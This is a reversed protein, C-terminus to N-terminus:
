GLPLMYDALRSSTKRLNQSVLRAIAKLIRVGTAAHKELILDFRERTLIVLTANKRARVTASRPFDDIVAMEGISRGRNLTALVVYRGEETKKVVDLAGEAVFCIYDGQDGERFLIEGKELEIFSMHRSVLRLEDGKFQDFIPVNMLLDIIADLM